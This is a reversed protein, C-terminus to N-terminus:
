RSILRVKAGAPYGMVRPGPVNSVTLTTIRPSAPCRWAACCSSGPLQGAGAIRRGRHRGSRKAGVHATSSAVALFSRQEGICDRVHVHDTAATRGRRQPRQGAGDGVAAGPREDHAAAFRRLAGTVVALVVDNLKVERAEKIRVCASWRCGSRAGAGAAARDASEPVVAPAPNIVDEAVQLAARRMTEAIRISEARRWGWRRSGDRRVSSSSRGRGRGLGRRARALRARAGAALRGTAPLAADPALDFLLTALEVAAIGDVMAHHVKGILAAGQRDRIRPM